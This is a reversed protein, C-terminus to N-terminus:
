VGAHAKIQVTAELKGQPIPQGAAMDLSGGVIVNFPTMYNGMTDILTQKGGDTYTMAREPETTMAPVPDIIGIPKANPDKPDMVSVPAVFVTLMPTDVNLTNTDVTYNVSDIVVKIVPESNITKLEPQETILDIMQYVAVDLSLDCKKTTGDCTGSCGMQCAQSVAASCISPNTSCSTNLYTMAVTSNVNWSATDVSFMKPKVTLDVNTVDSKILGCGVSLAILARLYTM